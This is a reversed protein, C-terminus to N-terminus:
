KLKVGNVTVNVANEIKDSRRIKEASVNELTVGDIPLREDGRINVLRDCHKVSVNKASINAIPTVRVEYTPFDKWQYLVDTEIGVVAKRVNDAEINEMRINEIFGGRRENTKMYYLNLVEGEVRCDHMYVNRVGGSMESGIGLLVHGHKVLCNRIEINESPRGIAWADQNRGSKIAVADDGQDFTCNEVLANRVSELDIGDNNRGHAHVDLGRVVVDDTLYIHVTWFPSERISFDELRVNKCRNFQILHPRCDGDGVKTLDRTEVPTAKSCWEYLERTAEMHRASRKFWKRWFGMKPAITGKGTIAVNTCGYAYVLPSYNLCEVGEWTTRVVPLYLAPDDEFVLRSGEALHLEINSRLHLPGRLLHEGPEVRVVGGGAAAADDIREQLTAGGAPRSSGTAGGSFACALVLAGATVFGKGIMM